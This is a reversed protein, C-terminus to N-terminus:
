GLDLDTEFLSLLGEGTATAGEAQQRIAGLDLAGELMVHRCNFRATRITAFPWGLGLTFLIVLFNGLKLRFLRGGTVTSRFRAGVFVTREWFYRRKAAAFWFWALGFTPLTLLVAYLFSVLLDAGEGDFDFKATGLYSHRLMFAHNRTAFAPYYLGLTVVALLSGVVFIRVFEAARGRFSFHIGRWSTRSLRYRRAGARAVPILVLVLAYATLSTAVTVATGADLLQPVYHLAGLPIGFVIGAKLFGLLLEAGRGHFAFRDGEFEAQGFLYRRVRVKAWFYYIGLTVLTLFVNVIHM